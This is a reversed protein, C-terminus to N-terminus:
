LRCNFKGPLQEDDALGPLQIKRPAYPNISIKTTIHNIGLLTINYRELLHMVSTLLSSNGKAIAAAVMNNDMDAKELLEKTRMSAISDIVVVTPPYIMMEEGKEDVYPIFCSTGLSEKEEAIKFIVEKLYESTLTSSRFITFTEEYEEETCGTINMIRARPNSSSREFDFLLVDGGLDKVVNYSTQLALTTKGSQSHGVYIIIKGPPIGINPFEEKDASLNITGGIYDIVDMGTSVFLSQEVSGPEAKQSKAQM